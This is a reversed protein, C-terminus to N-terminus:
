RSEKSHCSDASNMLGRRGVVHVAGGILLKWDRVPHLVRWMEEDRAPATGNFLQIGQSHQQVM